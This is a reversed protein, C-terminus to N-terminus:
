QRRSHRARRPQLSRRARHPRRSRRPRHPQRCPQRSQQARHPQHSLRHSHLPIRVSMRLSLLCHCKMCANWVSVMVRVLTLIQLGHLAILAWYAQLPRRPAAAHTETRSCSCCLKAQRGLRVSCTDTQRPPILMAERGDWATVKAHTTTTCAHTAGARLMAQM